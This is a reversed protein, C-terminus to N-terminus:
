HAALQWSAGIGVAVDLPVSLTVPSAMKARVLEEVAKEEGPAVELLLEDHIQVLLRSALGAESLASAVDLMAIKVIDAASGQIPANLAAREAMERRQRNTSRLDPLYRRRGFMTQTYGDARAQTVLGELYDRVKGFREFYRERLAAAEPVPIGLQAALGYSSLGYALGYSTAKIRSREEGTVDAVPTGFVMSAMTRHLDEGSNFAEILAEDGSLHAMLRMEIQSYDASMLSEYGQGAVFAGRIRMGDASRAPINQLNPDSSALRGTAAAVQSFTSHIRSDSAITASLSDVMQKLKIRDRHTLLFGLFDHGAGGREETKAWLDALADANTTYGTKTKKTKPLGFHDFLIEQLQKPSSLNVERGAAMWAGERAADVAKGLETSLGDLVDADAAIGITEMEELLISLPMEMDVLLSTEGREDLTARLKHALPHLAAALRGARVQAASPGAGIEDMDFLADAARTEEELVLGLVRSVVDELKHSRQDPHALYAALMTDFGVEGLTWGRAALAHRTGKADHVILSSAQALVDAVAREQAPSLEATDVVLADNTGALVLRSVDGRTPRVDGEILLALPARASTWATIDCSADALHVEIQAESASSEVAEVIPRDRMGIGSVERVKARLHAFELSDFLRDVAALNTPRRALDAPGVELDMDTLLRNLRRNRIVDDMHERLAAGRKGGIEDARALLNDLGDYKNIWQAATKPGVGPVGPLNDSTEGVIAAIEPYRQPPVGYKAEVAAPTMRRLDGPSAGPYLVTVNDTVTQFSDRDGSVVLVTAGEHGARYALTALIDDAEFGERSLSVIGMADLVERILEVQGKFEEPTADRTGKYEPYEETRFSHRSVDFAVAVHTPRETQLLRTLMSVFGYVANTHQGTATVFNDAPLAYFARFAMSHGDIILVTDSVCSVRSAM